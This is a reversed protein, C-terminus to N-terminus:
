IHILSLRDLALPFVLRARRARPAPEDLWAKLASWTRVSLPELLPLLAQWIFATAEVHGAARRALQPSHGLYGALARINRRPLDPFLRVAIAHLCVVDLPLQESGDVRRCLDRLFTLEREYYLLLDDRM